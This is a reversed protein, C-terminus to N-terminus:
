GGPAPTGGRIRHLRVEHATLVLLTLATIPLAFGFLAASFPELADHDAAALLLYTVYVAYYGVFVAAEWRAITFGTFVVPLLAIAVAVMVPLDFRLAAADVPVGDPAIGATLGLVATINFINSGVVNGIAMEREGRVAAIVSTALEPLSTGIAVVTLGIVLDSVGLAGALDTAATVLLRAGAVLLAVGVVLRVLDVLPRTPATTAPTDSQEDTGARRGLIVTWAVYPVLLAVLVAGELRGVAGDLALLLVLVSLAVMVPVDLRVLQSRVTVPLVVAALGLVLLVNTINSGVVNGVALGPTGSLTADLSVALEPASTAFAVVTLGVVLPSLGTARGLGSGGRVLLEGGLVLAAFGALLALTTLLGM